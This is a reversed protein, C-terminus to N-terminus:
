ELIAAKAAGANVLRDNQMLSRRFATPITRDLDAQHHIEIDQDRAVAVVVLFMGEAEELVAEAVAGSLDESPVWMAVDGNSEAFWLLVM